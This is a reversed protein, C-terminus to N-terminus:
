FARKRDHTKSFCLGLSLAWAAGLLTGSITDSPYHVGLYIRSFCVISIILLALMFIIKRQLHSKFHRSILLALTIYVASITIAHGSPFSFGSANILKPILTPRPREIFGKTYLSIVYAGSATLLYHIAAAGDKSLIFLVIAVFGLVVTLALGGLSSIDIMMANLFPTRFDNVWLLLHEDFSQIWNTEGSGLHIKKIHHSLLIFLGICFSIMASYLITKSTLKSFGKFSNATSLSPNHTLLSM